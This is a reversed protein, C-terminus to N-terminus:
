GLAARLAAPHLGRASAIQLLRVLSDYMGPIWHLIVIEGARLAEHDYTTLNGNYMSASWLVVYRLGAQGAAIQVNRNFTGYPPRGLIPTKGFWKAIAQSAGAWQAKDASQSLKTMDPHSVTHDEIDGGAAVFSRWYDLHSAAINSILFATIPLHTRQMLAIVRPDPTGGDDITIYFAGRAAPGFYIAPAAPLPRPAPPPTPTPSPSPSPPPPVAPISVPIQAKEGSASVVELLASCSSTGRPFTLTTVMTAAEPLGCPTNLPTVPMSFQLSVTKADVITGILAPLQPVAIELTVTTPWISRVVVIVRSTQGAPLTLTVTRGRQDGVVVTSGSLLWAALPGQGSALRITLQNDSPRFDWAVQPRGSTIGAVTALLFLALTLLATSWLVGRRRLGVKHRHASPSAPGVAPAQM